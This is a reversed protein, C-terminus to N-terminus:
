SKLLRYIYVLMRGVFTGSCAGSIALVLVETKINIATSPDQSLAYGCYYKGIFIILILILTSWSGSVHLLKKDREIKIKQRCVLIAGILSGAAVSALWTSISLFNIDFHTVLMEISLSLFVVPLIALKYISVTSPKRAKIGIFILYALLLYVWWPTHILTQQIVISLDNM